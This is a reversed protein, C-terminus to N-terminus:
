PTCRHIFGWVSFNCLKQFRPILTTYKGMSVLNFINIKNHIRSLITMIKISNSRLYFSITQM